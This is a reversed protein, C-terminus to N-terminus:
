EIEITKRKSPIEIRLVGNRFVAKVDKESIAFPLVVVREAKQFSRTRQYSHLIDDKKEIEESNEVSIKIQNSYIDLMIQEKKIGPLDAEIVYHTKTEFQRVIFGGFFQFNHFAENFFGDISKLINLLPQENFPTPLNNKKKSM